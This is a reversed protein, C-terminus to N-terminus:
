GDSAVPKKLEERRSEIRRLIEDANPLTPTEKLADRLDKEIEDLVKSSKLRDLALNYEELAERPRSLQLLILGFKARTLLDQPDTNVAFQFLREADM